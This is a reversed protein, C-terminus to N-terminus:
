YIEWKLLSTIAEEDVVNGDINKIGLYLPNALNGSEFIVIVRSGKSLMRDVSNQTFVAGLPLLPKAIPLQDDSLGDDGSLGFLSPVRVKALLTQKNDKDKLLEVIYGIYLKSMDVKNKLL